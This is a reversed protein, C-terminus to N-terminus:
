QADDEGALWQKISDVTKTEVQAGPVMPASKDRLSYPLSVLDLCQRDLLSITIEVMKLYGLNGALVIEALNRRGNVLSLYIWYDEDLNEQSLCEADDTLSPVQRFSWFSDRLDPLNRNRSIGRIIVEDLGLNVLLATPDDLEAALEYTYSGRPQITALYVIEALQDALTDTVEEASLYGEGVLFAGFREYDHEACYAELAQRLQEPTLLGRATLLAGLPERDTESEAHILRGHKLIFETRGHDTELSLRGSRHQRALVELLEVLPLEDLNGQLAM